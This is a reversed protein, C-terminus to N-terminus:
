NIKENENQGQGSEGQFRAAPEGGSGREIVNKGKALNIEMQMSNGACYNGRTRCVM